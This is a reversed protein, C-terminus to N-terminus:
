TTGRDDLQRAAREMESAVVEFLLAIDMTIKVVADDDEEITSRKMEHASARYKDASARCSAAYARRRAVTLANRTIDDANGDLM